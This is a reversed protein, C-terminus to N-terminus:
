HTAAISHFLNKIFFPASIRSMQGRDPDNVYFEIPFDVTGSYGCMLLCHERSPVVVTNGKQDKWCDLGESGIWSIVPFGRSICASIQSLSKPEHLMDVGSLTKLTRVVPPALVGWGDTGQKGDVYGVFMTSPNEWTNLYLNRRRPNYGFRSIIDDETSQIGLSSLYMKVCCAECSLGHDQHLPTIPLVVSMYASRLFVISCLLLFIM